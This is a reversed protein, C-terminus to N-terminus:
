RELVKDVQGLASPRLMFRERAQTLDVTTTTSLPLQAGASPLQWDHEAIDLLLNAAQTGLATHDPLVAFTGFSQSPSVLSAAGVITPVWPPLIDRLRQILTLLEGPTEVAAAPSSQAHSLSVPLLCMGLALLTRALGAVRHGAGPRVPGSVVDTRPITTRM